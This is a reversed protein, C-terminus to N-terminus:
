IIPSEHEAPCCTAPDTPCLHLKAPSPPFPTVGEQKRGMSSGGATDCPPPSLSSCVCGRATLPSLLRRVEEGGELGGGVAVTALPHHNVFNDPCASQFASPWKGSNDQSGAGGACRTPRSAPRPFWLTGQRPPPLCGSRALGPPTAKAPREDQLRSM